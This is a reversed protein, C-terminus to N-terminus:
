AQPGGMWEPVPGMSAFPEECFACTQLSPSNPSFCSHCLWPLNGNFLRAEGCLVRVADSLQALDFRQHARGLVKARGHVTIDRDLEDLHMPRGPRCRGASFHRGAHTIFRENRSMVTWVLGNSKSTKTYRSM